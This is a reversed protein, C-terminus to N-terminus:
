KNKTLMDDKMEDFMKQIEPPLEKKQAPKQYTFGKEELIKEEQEMRENQIRNQKDIQDQEKVKRLGATTGSLTNNLEKALENIMMRGIIM